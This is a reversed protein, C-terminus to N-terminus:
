FLYYRVFKFHTLWITQCLVNKEEIINTGHTNRKKSSPLTVSVYESHSNNSDILVSDAKNKSEIIKM